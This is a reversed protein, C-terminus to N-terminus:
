IDYIKAHMTPIHKKKITKYYKVQLFGLKKFLNISQINEEGIKVSYKEVNLTKIGYLLMLVVAKPFVCFYVIELHLWTKLYKKGTDEEESM